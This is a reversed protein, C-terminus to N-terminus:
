VTVAKQSNASFMSVNRQETDRYNRAAEKLGNSMAKSGEELISINQVVIKLHGSIINRAAANFQISESNKEVNEAISKLSKIVKDLMDVCNDLSEPEVSFASQGMGGGGVSQVIRDTGDLNVNVEKLDDNVMSVIGLLKRLQDPTLRIGTKEYIKDSILKLAWDQDISVFPIANLRQTVAETTGALGLAIGLVDDFTITINLGFPGEITYTDIMIGQAINVYEVFGGMGFNNLINKVQDALEPNTQEYKILYALLYAVDDAYKSDTLTNMFTDLAQQTMTDDNLSFANDLLANVMELAQTRDADPMSRLYSNLFQDLAKIEEAQGDPNVVMSFQGDSDYQMFTNPCHNELFGGSGIDQGKYFTTKGVDNLLFNVYDYDVNHNEIKGQYAAIKDKYDNMFKDSFGQGDFSICHDVTDDMITIYKSKNGGKSHGTVTVDYDNLGYEDYVQRYWKLANQQQSTDAVNGGTFNDKWEGGATGRFAVVADGTDNNVFVASYGGGGGEANDVHTTAVKMNSIEPDQLASSIINKWDKGTMFSGYNVDDQFKTVDINDSALWEGITQGPEPNCLPSDPVSEPDMYMLNNLLLVQETTLAM